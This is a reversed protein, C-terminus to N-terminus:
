TFPTSWSCPAGPQSTEARELFELVEDGLKALRTEHKHGQAGYHVNSLGLLGKLLHVPGKRLQRLPHYPLAARRMPGFVDLQCRIHFDHVPKRLSVEQTLAGERSAAAM